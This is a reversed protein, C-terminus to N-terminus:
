QTDPQVQHHDLPLRHQRGVLDRIQDIGVSLKGGALKAQPDVVEEARAHAALEGGLDARLEGGEGGGPQRQVVGVCVLVHM